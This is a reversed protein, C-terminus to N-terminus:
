TTLKHTSIVRRTEGREEIMSLNDLRLDRELDKGLLFRVVDAAVDQEAPWRGLTVHPVWTEPRYYTNEDEAHRHVEDFIARQMVTLRPIRVVPLYVVQDEGAFVGIGNTTPAELVPVSCVLSKLRTQTAELDYRDAVHFSLHPSSDAHTGSFGFEQTISTWLGRIYSSNEEDFLAVIGIM